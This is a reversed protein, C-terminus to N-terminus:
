SLGDLKAKIQLALVRSYYRCMALNGGHLWLGPHGSESWITRMEGEEDWGWVDGVRDAVEDGFIVRAQTRMNAYGTAFIIEDAEIETGDALRVGRPLISEVEQGHKVNINGDIILQSTGVDIYYGGGRQLYKIFLGANDPGNDLGFGARSLGSLLEADDKRQICALDVQISKMIDSPWSWSFIDADEVPPSGEEYLVGLNVKLLTQSGVVCTTSRQIMTVSHGKEYYDQAIDHSSNCAGIIVVKKPTPSEKAGPFDASHCLLAGQFTDMGKITPMNKVGSAGTAQVIHKPRLTRTETQGDPRTRKITVTWQRAAEDWSSSLLESKMWINLELFKAYSDFWEALKDKPTFVPWYDPFPLYPMHDYWVPDHLVLQHYRKRWNDGVADNSDVILASVGLMKLRAHATLGGQGAGIILVDPESDVFDAAGARRELWNKRGARSGPEVGNPRRPGVPEEFGKLEELGTFFTWIKFESGSEVMRIIGRGSGFQTTIRTFFYIGQVDGNPAFNAFTPKRFDSSTDIEVKTLNCQQRLFALIQDRGKITRLHWSTAVHDKWFSGEVFLSTLANFNKEAIAQNVASVTKEAIAAADVSVNKASAPWPHPPHMFSGPEIRQGSPKAAAM